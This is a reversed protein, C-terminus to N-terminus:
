EEQCSKLNARPLKKHVNKGSRSSKVRKLMQTVQSAGTNQLHRDLARLHKAPQPLTVEFDDANAGVN